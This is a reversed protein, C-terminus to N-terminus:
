FTFIAPTIYWGGADTDEFYVRQPFAFTFLETQQANKLSIKGHSTFVRNESSFNLRVPQPARHHRFAPLGAAHCADVRPASCFGQQILYPELVDEITDREEGIAAALNDVGVPGGAFKEMIALLMRRDM